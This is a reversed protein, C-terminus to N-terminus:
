GIVGPTTPASLPTADPRRPRKRSSCTRPAPRSQMTCPKLADRVDEHHLAVVFPRPRPPPPLHFAVTTGGTTAPADPTRTVPVSARSEIIARPAAGRLTHAHERIGHVDLVESRSRITETAPPRLQPPMEARLASSTITSHTARRPGSFRSWSRTRATATASSPAEQENTAPSPGHADSGHFPKRLVEPCPEHESPSTSHSRITSSYTAASTNARRESRSRPRDDHVLRRRATEREHEGITDTGRM